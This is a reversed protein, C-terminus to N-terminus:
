ALVDLSAVAAVLEAQRRVGVKVMASALQTRITNITVGRAMAIEQIDSGRALQVAIDAEAPGLRFLARVRDSLGPSKADGNRVAVVAQRDEGNRVPQIMVMHPQMQRTRRILMGGPRGKEVAERIASRLQLTETVAEAALLGEEDWLGDRAELCAAGNENVGLLESTASVLILGVNLLNLVESALDGDM